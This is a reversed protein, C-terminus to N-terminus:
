LLEDVNKKIKLIARAIDQVDKKTGMLYPYHVWVAEEYAAKHAVPTEASAATIGNKYRRKLSPWEKNSPSFIDRAHIPEYFDGDFLFGEAAMAQLFRDRHLGKFGKPNYKFIYQYHATRTIRKSPKITKVGEIGDLLETLFAANRARKKTFEDLKALQAILVAAQFETIRYNYGFLYGKFSDYGFEKRGCNVYSQLKEEYEKNNTLVIGGEGATMLKSSQFSFSGFDGFSGVGKGRWQAGHAHACDEILVLDHKKCIRKLRDIDAVSSGLHVPIVARTRPTIAAEVAKCDITYDSKLVDVFVPVANVWVACGATALWTYTPTIVEDGSKIGAAKLSLELTVSGNAMCVGYRADHAAAFKRAFESAKVNPSPYGGWNRSKLVGLLETEERKDYPPWAPYAKTRLPKGGNLALKPM